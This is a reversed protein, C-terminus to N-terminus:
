VREPWHWSGPQRGTADYPVSAADSDGGRFFLGSPNLVALAVAQGDWVQHVTRARGTGDPVIETIVWQGVQTMVASRCADSPFEQTGDALVPSGHPVYHAFRGVSPAPRDQEAYPLPTQSM